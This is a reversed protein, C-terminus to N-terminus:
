QNSDFFSFDADLWGLTPQTDFLGWGPEVMGLGNDTPFDTPIEQSPQNMTEHEAVLGDM